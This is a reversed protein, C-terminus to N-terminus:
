ESDSKLIAMLKADSKWEVEPDPESDSESDSKLESNIFRSLQIKKM